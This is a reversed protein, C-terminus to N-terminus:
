PAAAPAKLDLADFQALAHLLPQKSVPAPGTFPQNLSFILLLVLALLAGLLGTMAAQMALNSQHFAYSFLVVIVSGVLLVPWFVEPLTAEGSLHRLHRQLELQHLREKAAGLQSEGMSDTPQVQRYLDWVPNLLDATSHVILNGHSAWENSMVTNTYTRLATQVQGKLPDPLEQSDRYVAVLDAGEAVVAQGAGNYSEWEAFVVFALLAGYLVGVAGFLLGAVDNEGLHRQIRTRRVVMLGAVAVMAAVVVWLASLVFWM